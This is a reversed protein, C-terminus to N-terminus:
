PLSRFCAARSGPLYVKGRSPRAQRQEARNLLRDRVAELAPGTVVVPACGLAELVRVSFDPHLAIVEGGSFKARDGTDLYSEAPLGEALVVDHEALEIHHYVVRRRPLITSSTRATAESCRGM